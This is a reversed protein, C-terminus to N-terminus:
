TQESLLKGREKHFQLRRQLSTNKLNLNNKFDIRFEFYFENNFKIRFEPSLKRKETQCNCADAGTKAEELRDDIGEDEHQKPHGGNDDDYDVNDDDYEDDYNDDYEELRDDIGEDEHQKPHGDDVM